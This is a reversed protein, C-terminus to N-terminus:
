LVVLLFHELVQNLEYSVVGHLKLGTFTVGEVKILVRIIKNFWSRSASKKFGM